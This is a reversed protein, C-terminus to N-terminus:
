DDDENDDDECSAIFDQFRTLFDSSQTRIKDLEIVLMKRIKHAIYVSNDNVETDVQNVCILAKDVDFFFRLDDRQFAENYIPLKQIEQLINDVISRNIDKNFTEVTALLNREANARQQLKQMKKTNERFAPDSFKAVLNQLQMSSHQIENMISLIKKLHPGSENDKLLLNYVKSYSYYVFGETVTISPLEKKKEKKYDEDQISKSEQKEDQLTMEIKSHNNVLKNNVLAESDLSQDNKDAELRIVFCSSILFIFLNM